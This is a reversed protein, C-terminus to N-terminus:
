HQKPLSHLDGIRSAWPSPDGFSGNDAVVACQALLEYGVRDVAVHRTWQSAAWRRDNHAAEAGALASNVLEFQVDRRLELCRPDSPHSTTVCQVLADSLSLVRGDSWLLARRFAHRQAGWLAIFAVAVGLVTEVIRDAVVASTSAGPHSLTGITLALPTIFVVALGYNRPVSVEILFQLAMVVGIVAAGPVSVFQLLAFVGVGLVTGGLRLLGRYSGHIRDPGQQLVLVAGLVAWDPRPLGLVVASGGAVLAAAFVRASTALAHSRRDLSRALRYRVSPRDLPLVDSADDPDLGGGARVAAAFRLQADFLTTVLAPRPSRRPLGADYVAKWAVHLRSGATRRVSPDVGHAAVAAVAACVAQREPAHPAWLVPSMAVIAATVAGTAAWAAATTPSIDASPLYSSMACVLVFFFAGPVGIRLAAVVYVAIAAVVSLTLVPVLPVPSTGSSAGIWVSTVLAAGATLVVRWRARYPKGEGYIVAFSGSVILLVADQHGLLWALSAPIGFALAARVGGPWKRGASPLGFM